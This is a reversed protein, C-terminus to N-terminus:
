RSPLLNEKERGEGGGGGEEEEEKARGGEREGCVGEKSKIKQKRIFCFGTHNACFFKRFVRDGNLSITHM